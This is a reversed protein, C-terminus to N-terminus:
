LHCSAEGCDCICNAQNHTPLLTRIFSTSGPWKAIVVNDEDCRTKWDMSCFWLPPHGFYKDCNYSYVTTRSLKHTSKNCQLTEGIFIQICINNLLQNKSLYILSCTAKYTLPGCAVATVSATLTVFDASPQMCGSLGNSAHASGNGQALGVCFCTARVSVRCSSCCGEGYWHVPDSIIFDSTHIRAM